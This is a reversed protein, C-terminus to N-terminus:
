KKAILIPTADTKSFSINEFGGTETPLRRVSVYLNDADRIDKLWDFRFKATGSRGLKQVIDVVESRFISTGGEDVVHIALIARFPRGEVEIVDRGFDLVLTSESPTAIAQAVKLKKGVADPYCIPKPNEPLPVSVAGITRMTYFSVFSFVVAFVVVILAFFALGLVHKRM